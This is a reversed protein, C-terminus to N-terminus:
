WAPTRALEAFLKAEHMTAMRWKRPLKKGALKFAHM